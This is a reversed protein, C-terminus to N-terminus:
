AHREASQSRTQCTAGWSNRNPSSFSTVRRIRAHRTRLHGGPASSHGSQRAPRVAAVRTAGSAAVMLRLFRGDEESVALQDTDAAKIAQLLKVVDPPLTSTPQAHSVAPSAVLGLWFALTLLVARASM